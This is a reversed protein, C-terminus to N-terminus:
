RRRERTKQFWCRFKPFAWVIITVALLHAIILECIPWWHIRREFQQDQYPQEHFIRKAMNSDRNKRDRVVGGITSFVLAITVTVSLLFVIGTAIWKYIWPYWKSDPPLERHEIALRRLPEGLDSLLTLPLAVWFVVWCAFVAVKMNRRESPQVVVLGLSFIVAFVVVLVVSFGVVSLGM